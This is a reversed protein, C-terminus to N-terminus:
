LEASSHSSQLFPAGSSCTRNQFSVTKAKDPQKWSGPADARIWRWPNDPDRRYMRGTLWTADDDGAFFVQYLRVSLERIDTSANHRQLLWYLQDRHEKVLTLEATQGQPLPKRVAPNPPRPPEGPFLPMAGYQLQTTATIREGNEIYPAGVIVSIYSVPQDSVNKVTVTMGALWDKEGPFKQKPKIPSGKVKVAIIEVPQDKYVVHEVLRDKLQQGLSYAQGAVFLISISMVRSFKKFTRFM